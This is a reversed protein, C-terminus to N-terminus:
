RIVDDANTADLETYAIFGEGGVEKPVQRILHPFVERRVDPYDAGM